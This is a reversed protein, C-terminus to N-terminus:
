ANNNRPRIEIDCRGGDIKKVIAVYEFGQRICELIKAMLPLTISGAIGGGQTVAILSKGQVKIDLADGEDLGSVVEPNPSNLVTNLILTECTLEPEGGRGGTSVGGPGGSM